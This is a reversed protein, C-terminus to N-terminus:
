WVRPILRWTTGEAYERYGPLEEMLAEEEDKIRLALFIPTSLTPIMAWWSGLALPAFVLMLSVGAYMPHRVLAYPGTTIATQGEEVRIVRSAFRNERLTLFFISYGALVLLDSLVVVSPPVTSWGYRHDLGPILFAALWVVSVLGTISKQRVREEKAKLRRELLAPDHRLFYAVVFTVPLFLTALFLWAEWYRFTGATGFFMAGLVLAGGAFRGIAARVIEPKEM